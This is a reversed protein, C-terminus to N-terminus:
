WFFERTEREKGKIRRAMASWDTILGVATVGAILV